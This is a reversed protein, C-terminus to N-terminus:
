AVFAAIVAWVIISVLVAILAGKAAKVQRRKSLVQPQARIFNLHSETHVQAKQGEWDIQYDERSVDDANPLRDPM